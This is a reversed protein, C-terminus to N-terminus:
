EVFIFENSLLLVQALQEWVSLQTTAPGTFDRTSDWTRLSNSLAATGDNPVKQEHIAIHWLYQDTNLVQHIDTVFDITDGTEVSLTESTWKLQSHHALSSALVGHRSSLITCRIGDGPDEQHDVLSDIKITGSFPATWRRVVAHKLDNGPHGGTASLQVWGLTADPFQSGGQWAIGSFYPLRTFSALRTKEGFLIEGFGYSWAKTEDRQPANDSTTSEDLFRQMAQRETEDPYRQLVQRYLWDIRSRTDDINQIRQDLTKVLQKARQAVFPHNMSFLAQQPVTTESRQPTHLDPNAFDFMRLVGSVFQRDISAYLTRRQLQNPAAFLEGGRGGQSTSLENTIALWSDRMM